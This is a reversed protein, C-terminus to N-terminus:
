PWIILSTGSHSHWAPKSISTTAVSKARWPIRFSPLFWFQYPCRSKGPSDTPCPLIYFADFFGVSEVLLSFPHSWQVYFRLLITKRSKEGIGLWNGDLRLIRSWFRLWGRQIRSIWRTSMATFSRRQGKRMMERARFGYGYDTHFVKSGLNGFKRIWNPTSASTKPERYKRM